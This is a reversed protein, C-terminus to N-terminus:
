VTMILTNLLHAQSLDKCGYFILFTRCVLGIRLGSILSEHTKKLMWFKADLDSEFIRHFDENKARFNKEFTELFNKM